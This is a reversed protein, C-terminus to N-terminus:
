HRYRGKAANIVENRNPGCLVIAAAIGLVTILTAVISSISKLLWM